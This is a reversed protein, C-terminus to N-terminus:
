SLAPHSLATCTSLEGMVATMRDMVCSHPLLVAVAMIVSFSNLAVSASLVTTMLHSMLEMRATRKVMVGLVM